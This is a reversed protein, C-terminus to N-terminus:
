NMSSTLHVNALIANINLENISNEFVGNLYNKSRESSKLKLSSYVMGLNSRVSLKTDKIGDFYVNGLNIHIFVSGKFKKMKVIGEEVKLNLDGVFNDSYFNGYTYSIDIKRNKPIILKFSTYDPQVSCLKDVELADEENFIENSKIFVIGNKDELTIRSSFPNESETMILIENEEDSSILEIHDIINFEAIIKNSDSNLSKKFINQAFVSVTLLFFSILILSKREKLRYGNL